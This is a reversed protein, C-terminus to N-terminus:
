MSVPTSRIIRSDLFLDLTLMSAVLKQSSLVMELPTPGSDFKTGDACLQVVERLHQRHSAFSKTSDSPPRLPALARLVASVVPKYIKFIRERLQEVPLRLSARGIACMFPDYEASATSFGLASAVRATLQASSLANQALMVGQASLSGSPAVDHVASTLCYRFTVGGVYSDVRDGYTWYGPSCPFLGPSIHRLSCAKAIDGLSSRVAQQETDSPSDSRMRFLLRITTSRGTGRAQASHAKTGTLPRSSGPLPPLPASHVVGDAIKRKKRAPMGEAKAAGDFNGSDAGMSGHGEDSARCDTSPKLQLGEPEDDERPRKVRRADDCTAAPTLSMPPSPPKLETASRERPISDLRLVATFSFRSPRFGMVAHKHFKMCGMVASSVFSCLLDSVFDRAKHPDMADLHGVILKFFDAAAASPLGHWLNAVKCLAALFTDHTLTSTAIDLLQPVPGKACLEGFEAVVAESAHLRLLTIGRNLLIAFNSPSDSSTGQTLDEINGVVHKCADDVLGSGTALLALINSLSADHMTSSRQLEM